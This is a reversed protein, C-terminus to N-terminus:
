PIFPVANFRASIINRKAAPDTNPCVCVNQCAALKLSLTYRCSLAVGNCKRKVGVLVVAAISVRRCDISPLVSSQFVTKCLM